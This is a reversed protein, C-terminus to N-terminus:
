PQHYLGSMAKDQPLSSQVPFQSAGIRSFICSKVTQIFGAACIACLAFGVAEATNGIKLVARIDHRMISHADFRCIMM